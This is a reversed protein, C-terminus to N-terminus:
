YTKLTHQGSQMVCNATQYYQLVNYKLQM